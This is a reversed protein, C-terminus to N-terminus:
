KIIIININKKLDTLQNYTSINYTSRHSQNTKIGSIISQGWIRDEFGKKATSNVLSLDKMWSYVNLHERGHFGFEILDTHLAEKYWSLTHQGDNRKSLTEVFSENYFHQFNSQEIKDFDPNAPNMLFTFCASKNNYDKVSTLASSLGSVDEYSEFCDNYNMWDEPTYNKIYKDRLKQNKFRFSGWDDSEIVIIKRSTQWGLLQKLM